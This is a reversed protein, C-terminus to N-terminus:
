LSFAKGGAGLVDVLRSASGRQMLRIWSWRGEEGERVVTHIMLRCFRHKRMGNHDM